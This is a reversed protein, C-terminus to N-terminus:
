LMIQGPQEEVAPDWTVNVPTGGTPTYIANVKYHFSVKNAGKPLNNTISSQYGNGQPAPADGPWAGDGTGTFQIGPPDTNFVITGLNAPSVAINWNLQTTTGSSVKITKDPQQDWPKANGPQYQVNINM